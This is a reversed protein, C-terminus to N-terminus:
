LSKYNEGAGHRSLKDRPSAAFEDNFLSSITKERRARANFFKRMESSLDDNVPVLINKELLKRLVKFSFLHENFIVELSGINFDFGFSRKRWTRDIPLSPLM